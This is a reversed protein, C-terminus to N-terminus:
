IILIYYINLIYEFILFINQNIKDKIENIEKEKENIKNINELKIKENEEEIEKIRKKLEEKEKKEEEKIKKLKIDDNNKQKIIKIINDYKDNLEKKMINENIYKNESYYILLKNINIANYYNNKYIDYISYIMENIKLINDIDEIEREYKSNNIEKNYKEILNEIKIKIKIEEKENMLKYKNYIKNNEEEYEKKRLKIKNEYEKRLEDIDKLYKENNKKLEKGEKIRNKEKEKKLKNKENEKEDKLKKEIQEKRISHEEKLKKLKDKYDEVVKNIINLEEEVPKIEIINSKKHNIHIRTKLCENCLHCNCDFCYCENNKNHIKCKDKLEEINKEEKEKIKNIYEKITMTYEKNEKICRFEIINNNENISLIEISSSCEPCISFCDKILQEEPSEGITAPPAENSDYREKKEKSM